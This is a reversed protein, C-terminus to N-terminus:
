PKAEEDFTEKIRKNWSDPLNIKLSIKKGKNHVYHNLILGFAIMCFVFLGFFKYIPPAPEGYVGPALHESTCWEGVCGALYNEKTIPNYYESEFLPNICGQPSECIFSIRRDMGDRVYLGGIIVVLLILIGWFIRKDYIYGDETIHFKKM